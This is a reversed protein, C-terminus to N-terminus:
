LKSAKEKMGLVEYSSKLMIKTNENNPDLRYSEEFHPLAKEYMVKRKATLEDYVKYNDLSKNIEEVLKVDEALTSYGINFHVSANTPDKKIIENILLNFTEKDGISSYLNAENILVNVNDSNLEKSEKYAKKAGEIDGLKTKFDAINALVNDKGGVKVDRPKSHSKLDLRTKRASRSTFTEEKGTLENFAYFIYGNKLYDSDNYEEYYKLANKYDEAQAAQIAANLLNAGATKDLQYLNYFAASSQKYQKAANLQFAAEELMPTFFSLIENIDSTYNKKGSKKEFDLTANIAKTFNGLAEPNFIRMQDQPTVKEGLKAIELLPLIGNYFVASIKDEESTAVSELSKVASKYKDVDEQSPQDKEYVKKLTKLEDKQAFTAISIFFAVILTVKKM